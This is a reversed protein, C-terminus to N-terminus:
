LHIDLYGYQSGNDVDSGDGFTINGPFFVAMLDEAKAISVIM